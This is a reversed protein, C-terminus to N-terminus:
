AENYLDIFGPPPFIVEMGIKETLGQPEARYSWIVKCHVKLLEDSLSQFHISLETGVSIRSSLDLPDNSDIEVYIGHESINEIHCAIVLDDVIMEGDIRINKRKSRRKENM